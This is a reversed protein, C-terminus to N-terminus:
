HLCQTPDHVMMGTLAQWDNPGSLVKLLTFNHWNESYKSAATRKRRTKTYKNQLYVELVEVVEVVGGGGM